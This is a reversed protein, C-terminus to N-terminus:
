PTPLPAREGSAGPFSGERAEGLEQPQGMGQSRAAGESRQGPWGAEEGAEAEAEGKPPEQPRMSLGRLEGSVGKEISPREWPGHTLVHTSNPAM